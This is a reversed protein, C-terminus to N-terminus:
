KEEAAYIGGAYGAALRKLQQLNDASVDSHVIASQVSKPLSEFYARMDLPANFIDPMKLVGKPLNIYNGAAFLVRM